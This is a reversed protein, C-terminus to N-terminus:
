LVILRPLTLPEQTIPMLRTNITKLTKIEAAIGSWRASKNRVRVKVAKAVSVVVRFKSVVYMGKEEWGNCEM